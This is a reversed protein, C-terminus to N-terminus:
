EPKTCAILNLLVVVVTMGFLPFVSLVSGPFLGEMLFAITVFCAGAHATEELLAHRYSVTEQRSLSPLFTM